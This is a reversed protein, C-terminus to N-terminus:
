MGYEELLRLWLESRTPFSPVAHWLDELPVKGVVAITAAHLAEAVESGTITAGVVVRREEDVVLRATGPAGRGVFSGGANGSTEVDVARVPLAEESAAALTLGVAGVQPDTFIVRPSAGGDSRLQVDKGLISDAALRAQYKGMHTLLARGNVDGVAYLWTEHGPVRLSDDVRLHGGPEIGITDLGVDATRPTRGIAVLIEDAEVSEDGLEIRVAGNRGVASVETALRVDVGAARLAEAVQAGAFPEEREILRDGRHVLTVQSGLSSWAQAMEVGVVGGGLVFLRRPVRKATTAEINTWPRADTLGPVPPITASSGTAVVVARRAVLVDDGVRVRREGDLRGHGRILTVGREELWPVQTSDDLGHVVEDRRALVADVELGGTAVGPVRRAEAAVELPRLLAKSPMCAFFSCEGGVLREEVIAVEVGAEGLRGAIVEGPAGAGIVVVDVEREAM